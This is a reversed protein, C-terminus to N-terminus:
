IVKGIEDLERTNTNHSLLITIARNDSAGGFKNMLKKILGKTTFQDGCITCCDNGSQQIIGEILWTHKDGSPLLFTEEREVHYFNNYFDLEIKKM